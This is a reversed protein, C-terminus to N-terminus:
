PIAGPNKSSFRKDWEGRYGLCMTHPVARLALACARIDAPTRSGTPILMESKALSVQSAADGDEGSIVRRNQLMVVRFRRHDFTLQRFGPCRAPGTNVPGAATLCGAIASAYQAYPANGAVNTAMKFAKLMETTGDAEYSMSGVYSFEKEGSPTESIDMATPPPLSPTSPELLDMINRWTEGELGVCVVEAITSLATAITLSTQVLDVKTPVPISVSKGSAFWFRLKRPSWPYGEADDCPVSSSDKDVITGGVGDIIDDIADNSLGDPVKFTYKYKLPTTPLGWDPLYDSARFTIGEPRAM